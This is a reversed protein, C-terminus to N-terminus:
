KEDKPEETQEPITLSEQIEKICNDVFNPEFGWAIQKTMALEVVKFLYDMRKTQLTFQMEQMQQHLKQIYKQMQQNQQSLDMCAQNLQEYTLKQSEEQVTSQPKGESNKVVGLKVEKSNKQEEM